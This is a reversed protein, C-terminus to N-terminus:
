ICCCSDSGAADAGTAAALAVPVLGALAWLKLEASADATPAWYGWVGPSGVVTLELPTVAAAPATLPEPYTFGTGPQDADRTSWPESPVSVELPNRAGPLDCIKIASGDLAPQPPPPYM